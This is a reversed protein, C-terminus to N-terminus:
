EQCRTVPSLKLIRDTEWVSKMGWDRKEKVYDLRNNVRIEERHNRFVIQNVDVTNFM